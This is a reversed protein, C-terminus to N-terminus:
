NLYKIIRPFYYSESILSLRLSREDSEIILNEKSM